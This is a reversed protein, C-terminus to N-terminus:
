RWASATWAYDAVDELLDHDIAPAHVLVVDAREHHVREILPHRDLVEAFREVHAPDVRAHIENVVIRHSWEIPDPSIPVIRLVSSSADPM